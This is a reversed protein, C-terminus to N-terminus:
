SQRGAAAARDTYNARPSLGRLKWNWSGSHSLQYLSLAIAQILQPKIRLLTMFHKEEQLCRTSNQPRDLRRNLLYQLSNGQPHLLRPMFKIVWRQRNGVKLIFQSLGKSWRQTNTTHLCLYMKLAVHGTGERFCVNRSYEKCFHKESRLFRVSLYTTSLFHKFKLHAM